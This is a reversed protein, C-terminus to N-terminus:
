LTQQAKQQRIARLEEISSPVKQVPSKTSAGSFSSIVPKEEQKVPVQGPATQTPTAQVSQPPQAAPVGVFSLVEAVLQGVPPSVKHVTEYYQGRRIVESRFAGPKGLRADFAASASAVEPKALEQSLEFTAQKAVLEEMQKQLSDKEFGQAEYDLQLKRQQDIAARQEPPLEAYKLEEIAYQIIKEKPINLLSFFTNYDGKRAYSGITKISEEVQSLKQSSEQWKEKLSARDAKVEDLGYAKEHLEKLKKETVEDKIWPKFMEDLELEKDKVKFKYNPQWAPAAQNTEAVGQGEPQSTAQATEASASGAAQSTAQEAPASTEQTTQTEKSAEM